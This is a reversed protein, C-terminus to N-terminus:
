SPQCGCGGESCLDTPSEPNSTPFSSSCHYLRRESSSRSEPAPVGAPREPSGPRRIWRGRWRTMSWTFGRQIQWSQSVGRLMNVLGYPGVQSEASGRCGTIIMFTKTIINTGFIFIMVRSSRDTWRRSSEKGPLPARLAWTLHFSTVFGFLSTKLIDM